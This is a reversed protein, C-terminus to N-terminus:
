RFNLADSKNRANKQWIDISKKKESLNAMVYVKQNLM